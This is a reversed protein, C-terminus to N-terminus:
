SVLAEHAPERSIVWGDLLNWRQVEKHGLSVDGPDAGFAERPGSM